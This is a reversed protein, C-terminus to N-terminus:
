LYGLTSYMFSVNVFIGRFIKPIKVLHAYTVLNIAVGHLDIFIAGSDSWILTIYIYPQYDM